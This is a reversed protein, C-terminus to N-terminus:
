LFFPPSTIVYRDLGDIPRDSFLAALFRDLRYGRGLLHRVADGNLLPVWFGTTSTGTTAAASELHALIPPMTAADVAAAPGANRGGGYGYGALRGERHYLWGRRNSRLWEHDLDRRQGLLAEDLSGIATVEDSSGTMEVAELGPDPDPTEPARSFFGAMTRVTLGTRLYRGLAPLELTAIISRRVGPEAPFARALLEGGIGGGQRGPRVFFETLERSDGRRISRAYGVVAGDDAEALWGLDSTAALHDFLSRSADWAQSRMADDGPDWADPSGLRRDVDAVAEYFVDFIARGDEREIPRFATM